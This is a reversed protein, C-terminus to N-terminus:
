ESIKISVYIDPFAAMIKNNPAMGVFPGSAYVFRFKFSGSQKDIIQVRLPDYISKMQSATWTGFGGVLTNDQGHTESSITIKYNNNPATQFTTVTWCNNMTAFNPNAIDTATVSATGIINTGSYLYASNTITPAPVAFTACQIRCLFELRNEPVFPDTVSLDYNVPNSGAQVITVSGDNSTITTNYSNNVLNVFAGSLSVTYTTIGGVTSSTVIVPAGGSSVVVNVNATGLGQVLRPTGDSCDCDDTCNALSKIETMLTNATDNKGCFIALQMLEVKSMIQEFLAETQQFLITNTTRYGEIRSEMSSLCCFLDCVLNCDVNIAKSGTVTDIVVLGDDFVYTLDSDVTTVQMGTYFTSTTITATTTNTIPTGGSGSPFELTITRSNTPTIGGVEYDTEDTTTFLPSYCEALTAIVVTPSTYDLTYVTEPSSIIYTPNTGDNISTSYTITYDGQEPYNNTLAPLAVVSQQTTSNDVDIDCGPSTFTVNQYITIGSPSVITLCGFVNTTPINYSAYDTTDIVSFKRPTTNLLFRTTFRLDSGSIITPAPM